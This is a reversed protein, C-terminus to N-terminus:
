GMPCREAIRDIRVVQFGGALLPNLIARRASLENWARAARYIVIKVPLGDAEVKITVDFFFMRM